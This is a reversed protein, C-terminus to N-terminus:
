INVARLRNGVQNAAIERISKSILLKPDRSRPSQQQGGDSFTAYPNKMYSYFATIMGNRSESMNEVKASTALRGTRYNLVNRSNGDGMNASIVSQLQQNILNQLNILSSLPTVEPRTPIPVRTKTTRSTPKVSRKKASINLKSVPKKYKEQKFKTKGELTQTLRLALEQVLNNSFNANAILLGVNSEAVGEILTGYIQQNEFRDQIIVINAKASLLFAQVGFDKELEIEIQKGYASSDHLAQLEASVKAKLAQINSKNKSVYGPIGVIENDTISSIADLMKQLKIGSPTKALVSNGLVHGVDFGKKFNTGQYISDDIFKYIEQNLFQRFLGEYASNYSSYLVGVLTNNSYIVAPLYNALITDISQIERSNNVELIPKGGINIIKITNKHRQKVFTEIKTKLSQLNIIKDSFDLQSDIAIQREEPDPFLAEMDQVIVKGLTIDLVSLNLPVYHPVINLEEKRIIKSSSKRWISLLADRVPTSSM